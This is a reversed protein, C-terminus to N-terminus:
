EGEEFVFIITGDPEDREAGEGPDTDLCVIKRGASEELKTELDQYSERANELSQLLSEGALDIRYVAYQPGNTIVIRRGFASAATPVDYHAPFSIPYVNFDIGNKSFILTNGGAIIEGFPSYFAGAIQFNDEVSVVSEEWVSSKLNLRRIKLGESDTSFINLINDQLCIKYRYYAGTAWTKIFEWQVLDDSQVLWGKVANASFADYGGVMYYKGSAPDYSIDHAEMTYNPLNVVAYNTGNGVFYAPPYVASGSARFVWYKGNLYKGGIYPPTVNSELPNTLQSDIVFSNGSVKAWILKNGSLCLFREGGICIRFIDTGEAQLPTDIWSKGNDISIKTDTAGYNCGDLWFLNGNTDFAIDNGDSVGAGPDIRQIKGSHEASIGDTYKKMTEGFIEETEQSKDLLRDIAEANQLIQTLALFEPKEPIQAAPNREVKLLLNGRWLDEEDTYVQLTCIHDGPTATAQVPLIVEVTNSATNIEACIQVSSEVYFFAKHDSTFQMQERANNLLTFILKRANSEGQVAYIVTKARDHCLTIYQTEM